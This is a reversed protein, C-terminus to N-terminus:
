VINSCKMVSKGIGTLYKFNIIQIHKMSKNETTHFLINKVLTEEQSTSDCGNLHNIMM